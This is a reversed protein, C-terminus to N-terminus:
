SIYGHKEESHLIRDHSHAVIYDEIRDNTFIYTTELKPCNHIFNSCVTKYTVKSCKVSM